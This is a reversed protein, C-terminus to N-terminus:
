RRGHKHNYKTYVQHTVIWVASKLSVFKLLDHFITLQINFLRNVDVLSQFFLISIRNMFQKEKVAVHQNHAIFVIYRAYFKTTTPHTGYRM